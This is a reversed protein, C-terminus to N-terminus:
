RGPSGRVAGVARRRDRPDDQDSPHDARLRRWQRDNRRAAPVRAHAPGLVGFDMGYVHCPGSRPTIGAAVALTRLATSKGSGGTGYVAMNGDVDPYFYVSRQQQKSPDDVVGILLESDRRQGLFQLDYAAAMEPLWPKRPPMIEARGAAVAISGVLRSIDNPGLDQVPSSAEVEPEEWARGPGFTLEHLFLQAAPTESSTWGGAYGTQFGTIRGPGTKAAGRGPIDPSFAAAVDTGLVDTSDGEDAMRLAVRLNTNARLNDKIVGAPRQTALILHLGLSRGRQAVNVVGDVFEPVEQVLAAFEDVVIVLSPPSDPDGRRHLELLDKAKKANLIHERYKLEANLSTLARRVLHPSLDTVMGVSHPLLICDAFAAGGKYDVFLFTLTDPSYAAAMGLVWSQLFESKGAGTTGGVLAHPGQLRLDLTLPEGAAQGVLARLSTNRRKVAPGRRDVISESERWKDIVAAPDDALEPGLLSLFSVSRPLDSDDIVRAGADAVPALSRAAAMAAEVTVTECVVPRVGISDRVFGATVQGSGVDVTVFTRCAAPLREQTPSIWLVHIGVAPGNEAIGVLRSREVPADDEVIVLLAPTASDKNRGGILEEIEAILRTGTAAEAALHGGSLPSHPSDNHPLWKLWEWDKGTDSSTLAAVALDAPSHLAIAQLAVGRAVGAADARPGAIGVSGCTRFDGIVPVDTM